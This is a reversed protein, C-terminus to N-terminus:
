ANRSWSEWRWPQRWSLTHTRELDKKIALYFEGFNPIFTHFQVQLHNFRNIYGADILRRLLAYEGGEINIKVLGVQTIALEDMFGIVDRFVAPMLPGAHFNPDAAAEFHASTRDGALPIQQNFDHDALGFRFVDVIERAIEPRAQISAAYMAIPEFALVRCGFKKIIAVAFDGRYAGVDMVLSDATLAYDLREPEIM